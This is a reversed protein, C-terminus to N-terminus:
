WRSAEGPGLREQEDRVWKEFVTAEGRKIKKRGDAKENMSWALAAALFTRAARDDKKVVTAYDAKADEVRGLGLYAKARYELAEVYDAKLAISKDYAKLAKKYKGTKRYAYGLSGWAPYHNRDEKTAKELAKIAQKYEREASKLYGRQDKGTADAVQKAYSWAKDRHSLGVNYLRDAEIRRERDSKEPKESKKSGGMSWAPTAILLISLILVVRMTYHGM